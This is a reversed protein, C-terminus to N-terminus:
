KEIVLVGYNTVTKYSELEEIGAGGPGEGRFYREPVDTLGWKLEGKLEAKRAAEEYVSKKLHYCDFEVNGLPTHGKVHFYVGEDVLGNVSYYLGGSGEPPPRVKLEADISTMPDEAPPVTISVFHGGEKLNIAINRFMDELDARDPAYNLLWAGFVIDFPGKPYAQPRSCDALMFDVKGNNDSTSIGASLPNPDATDITNGIRRAEEIMIESIDVGFVSAAGWKLFSYTYFGSGCALELVRAGQIFPAVAAQVNEHEICAISKKRIYDYPAQITNYQTSM